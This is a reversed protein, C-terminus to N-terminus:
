RLWFSLIKNLHWFAGFHGCSLSMKKPRGLQEWLEVQNDSPVFTDKLTVIMCINKDKIAPAIELPDLLNVSATANEYDVINHHSFLLMHHKRYNAVDPQTSYTLMKALNGGGMVVIGTKIKPIAALLYILRIAGLSIGMANISTQDVIDIYQTLTHELALKVFITNRVFFHTLEEFKRNEISAINVDPKVILVVNGQLAFRRGIYRNLIKNKLDDRIPPLLVM